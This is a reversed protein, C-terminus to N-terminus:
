GPTKNQSGTVAYTQATHPAARPNHSVHVRAKGSWWVFMFWVRGEQTHLKIGLPVCVWVILILAAENFGTHSPPVVRSPPTPPPQHAKLHNLWEQMPPRSPKKGPFFVSSDIGPVPPICYSGKQAASPTHHCLPQPPAPPRSSAKQPHVTMMNVDSVFLCKIQM